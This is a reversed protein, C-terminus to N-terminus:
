VLKMSRPANIDRFVKYQYYDIAINRGICGNFEVKTENFQEFFSIPYNLVEIIIKMEEESPLKEGNEINSIVVTPLKCKRALESKTLRRTHRAIEFQFPNYKPMRIKGWDGIPKFSAARGDLPHKKETEDFGGRIIEM